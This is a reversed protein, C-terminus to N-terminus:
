INVTGNDDWCKKGKRYYHHAKSYMMGFHGLDLAQYGLACLDAALVTAAPGLSIVFLTDKNYFCLHSLLDKLSEFADRKPAIIVEVSKVGTFITPDKDFGTDEGKILVVERGYWMEKCLEWYEVCDIHLASDARSIFSSYYQKKMYLLETIKKGRYNNWFKEKRGSLKNDGWINPIGVLLNPVNSKLIDCLRVRIEKGPRQSIQKRGLCLKFEGDGFRAISASRQIITKITEYEGIVKPKKM